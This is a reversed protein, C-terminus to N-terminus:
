PVKDENIGGQGLDFSGARGSRRYNSACRLQNWQLAGLPHDSRGSLGKVSPVGKLGEGSSGLAADRPAASINMSSIGGVPQLARDRTLM